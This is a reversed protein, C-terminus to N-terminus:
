NLLQEGQRSFIGHIYNVLAIRDWSETEVFRLGSAYLESDPLKRSYRVEACLEIPEDGGQGILVRCRTGVPLEYRSRTQLGGLSIDVVVAFITSLPPPAHIAAYELLEFRHHQRQDRDTTPDYM